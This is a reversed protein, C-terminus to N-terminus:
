EQWVSTAHPYSAYPAVPHGLTMYVDDYVHKQKMCWFNQVGEEREEDEFWDLQRMASYAIGNLDEKYNIRKGKGKKKPDVKSKIKRTAEREKQRTVREDVLVEDEDPYLAYKRPHKPPANPSPSDCTFHIISPYCRSLYM